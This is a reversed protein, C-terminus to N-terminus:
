VKNGNSRGAVIAGDAKDSNTGVSEGPIARCTAAYGAVTPDVEGALMVHERFLEGLRSYANATFTTM